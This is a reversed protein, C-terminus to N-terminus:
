ELIKLRMQDTAKMNRACVPDSTKALAETERIMLALSERWNSDWHGLPDDTGCPEFTESYMDLFGNHDIKIDKFMEILKDRLDRPFGPPFIMYFDKKMGVEAEGEAETPPYFETGQPFRMHLDLWYQFDQSNNACKVTSQALGTVPSATQLTNISIM